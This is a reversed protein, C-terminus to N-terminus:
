PAKGAPCNRYEIEAREFQAKIDNYADILVRDDTTTAPVHQWMFQRCHELMDKAISYHRRTENKPSGKRFVFHDLTAIQCDAYYLLAHLPSRHKDRNLTSM